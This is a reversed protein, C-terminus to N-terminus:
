NLSAKDDNGSDPTPPKEEKVPSSKPGSRSKYKDWPKAGSTQQKPQEKVPEPNVQITVPPTYTQEVPAKAVETPKANQTSINLNAFLDPPNYADGSSEPQSVRSNDTTKTQDLKDGGEDKNSFSTNMQTMGFFMNNPDNGPFGGMSPPFNSQNQAQNTSNEM